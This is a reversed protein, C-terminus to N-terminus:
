GKSSTQLPQPTAPVHSLAHQACIFLVTVRVRVELVGGCGSRVCPFPALTSSWVAVGGQLESAALLAAPTSDLGVSQFQHCPGRPLFLLARVWDPVAFSSGEGIGELELQELRVLVLEALFPPVFAM